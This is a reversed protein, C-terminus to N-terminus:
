QLVLRSYQTFQNWINWFCAAVKPLDEPGIENFDDIELCRRYAADAEREAYTGKFASLLHQLIEQQEPNMNHSGTKQHLRDANDSCFKLAAKFHEDNMDDLSRIGLHM